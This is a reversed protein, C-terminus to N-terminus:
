ACGPSFKLLFGNDVTALHKIAACSSNFNTCSDPDCGREREEVGGGGERRSYGRRQDPWKNKKENQNTNKAM